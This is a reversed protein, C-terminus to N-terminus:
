EEPVNDESFTDFCYSDLVMGDKQDYVAVNFGRSPIAYDTDGIMISATDGVDCGASVMYLPVDDALTGSYEIKEDSLEEFVCHPVGKDVKVVAIYSKRYNEEGQVTQQLDLEHLMDQEDDTLGTSGEDAIAMLLYVNDPNKVYSLYDDFSGHHM